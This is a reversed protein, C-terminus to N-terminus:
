LFYTWLFHHVRNVFEEVLDREDDSDCDDEVADWVNEDGGAAAAAPTEGGADAAAADAPNKRAAAAEAGYYDENVVVGAMMRRGAAVDAAAAASSVAGSDPTPTRSSRATRRRRRRRRARYQWETGAHRRRCVYAQLPAGAAVVPTGADADVAPAYPPLAVGQAAGAAALADATAPETALTIVVHLMLSPLRPHLIFLHEQGPTSCHRIRLYQRCQAPAGAASGGLAASSSTHQSDSRNVAAAGAGAGVGITAAATANVGYAVRMATVFAHWFVHASAAVGVARSLALGWDLPIRDSGLGSASSAAAFGGGAGVGVGASAGSGPAFAGSSRGGVGVGAASAAAANTAAATSNEVLTVFPRVVDGHTTLSSLASLRVLAPDYSSIPRRPCLAAFSRLLAASAFGGASAVVPPAPAAPILTPQAAVRTFGFAPAASRQLLIPAAAPDGPLLLTAPAAGITITEADLAAGVPRAALARAPGSRQCLGCDCGGAPAGCCCGSGAATGAPPSSSPTRALTFVGTEASDPEAGTGTTAPSTADAAEGPGEPRHALALTLLPTRGAVGAVAAWACDRQWLALFRCFASRLARALAPAFTAHVSSLLQAPTLTVVPAAAAPADAVASFVAAAAADRPMGAAFPAAAAAARAPTVTLVWETRIGWGGAIAVGPSPSANVSSSRSGGADPYLRLLLTYTLSEKLAAAPVAAAAASTATAPVLAVPPVIVGCLVAEDNEDEDEEDSTAAAAAAAPGADASASAPDSAAPSVAPVTVTGFLLPPAACGRRGPDSRASLGLEPARASVYRIFAACTARARAAAAAAALPCVPEPQMVQAPAPSQAPLQLQLQPLILALDPSPVCAVIGPPMVEATAVVAAAPGAGLAAAPTAPPAFLPTAVDGAACVATVHDPMRAGAPAALLRLTAFLDAESAAAALIPDACGITGAAAHPAPSSDGHRHAPGHDHADSGCCVDSGEVEEEEDTDSGSDSSYRARLVTAARPLLPALAACQAILAEAVVGRLLARAASVSVPASTAVASACSGRAAAASTASLAPASAILRMMPPAFRPMLAGEGTGTAAATPATVTLTGPRRAFHARSRTRDYERAAIATPPEPVLIAWAAGGSSSPPLGVAPTQAPAPALAHTLAAHPAQATAAPTPPAFLARSLVAEAVRDKGTEAAALSVSSLYRFPTVSGGDLAAEAFLCSPRAALLRDSTPRSFALSMHAALAAPTLSALARALAGRTDTM